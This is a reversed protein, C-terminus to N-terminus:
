WAPCASGTTSWRRRWTRCPSPSSDPPPSGQPSVLQGSDDRQADAAAFAAGSAAVTTAQGGADAISRRATLVADLLDTGTVEEAHAVVGDPEPEGSGNLLGEDLQRSLSDGLVTTFMGTINVAADNMMENSVDLLGALKALGIVYADDGLNMLPIRDLEGLWAAGEPSVTPWAVHGSTTVLRTISAAFAARDILLNIIRAQVDVPVLTGQFSGSSIVAV